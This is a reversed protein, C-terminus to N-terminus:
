NLDQVPENTWGALDFFEQAPPFSTNEAAPASFNIGGTYACSQGGSIELSYLLIVFIIIIFIIIIYIIFIFLFLGEKPELRGRPSSRPPSIPIQLKFHPIFHVQFTRKATSAAAPAISDFSLTLLLASTGFSPPPPLPFYIFLSRASLVPVPLLKGM